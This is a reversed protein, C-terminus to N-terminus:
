GLHTDVQSLYGLRVDVCCSSAWLSVVLVSIVQFLMEGTWLRVIPSSKAEQSPSSQMRSELVEAETISENKVCQDSQVYSM